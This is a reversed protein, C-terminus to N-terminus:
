QCEFVSPLNALNIYIHTFIVFNLLGLACCHIKTCSNPCDLLKLYGFTFFYLIFHLHVHNGYILAWQQVATSRFRFFFCYDGCAYLITPMGGGLRLRPRRLRPWHVNTVVFKLYIHSFIWQWNWEDHMCEIAPSSSSVFILYRSRSTVSGDSCCWSFAFVWKFRRTRFLSAPTGFGQHMCGRCDRLADRRAELAAEIDELRRSASSTYAWRPLM